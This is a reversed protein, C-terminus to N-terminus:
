TCETELYIFASAVSLAETAGHHEQVSVAGTEGVLGMVKGRGICHSVDLPARRTRFFILSM